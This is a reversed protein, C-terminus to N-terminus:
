FSYKAMLSVIESHSHASADGTLGLSGTWRGGLPGTFNIGYTLFDKDNDNRISFRSSTDAAFSGNLMPSAGSLLRKYGLKVSLATGQKFQKKFESGIEGQWANHSAKDLVQELGSSGTETYAEQTGHTYSLKGYPAVQWNKGKTGPLTYRAKFETNYLKTDFAGHSTKNFIPLYHDLDYRNEGFSGQLQYDWNGKIKSGYLGVRWDKSDGTVFDSGYDTNGYSFYGGVRTDPSLSKDYGVIGGFTKSNSTGAYSSAQRGRFMQMWLNNEADLAVQPMAVEVAANTTFGPLVVKIKGGNEGALSVTVATLTDIRDSVAQRSLDGLANGLLYNTRNQATVGKAFTTIDENSAFYVNSLDARFQSASSEALIGPAFRNLAQMVKNEADSLASIALQEKAELKFSATNENVYDEGLDTTVLTLLNNLDGGAMTGKIGEGSTLYTYVTGPTPRMDDVFSLEARSLDAAGDVALKSNNEGKVAVVIKGPGSYNGRLTLTSPTFAFSNKEAKTLDYSGAMVSSYNVMAGNITGQGTLLGSEIYTSGALSGDIQLTGGSVETVGEYSNNGTLVLIGEGQKRLGVSLGILGSQEVTADYQKIYEATVAKANPDAEENELWNTQYYKYRAALDEPQEGIQAEQGEYRSPDLYGVKIEKIDNSWVSNYGKTNITYIAQSSAAGKPDLIFNGSVKDEAGLRRANLAGLGNVAKAADVVGQGILAELPVNYYANVTDESDVEQGLYSSIDTRIEDEPKDADEGLYFVNYYRAAAESDSATGKSATNDEQEGAVGSVVIYDYVDSGEVAVLEINNNATSLVVDGLQKANMYPFAEQVLAAVGSVFPAAMSTGSEAKDIEGTAAFDSNASWINLGAAAVTNDEVYKALDSFTTMFRSGELAGDEGKTLCTQDIATVSLINNKVSPEFIGITNDYTPGTNGENGAAYVLLKDNKAAAISQQEFGKALITSSLSSWDTFNMADIYDGMGWSNNIVKIEPKDMLAEYMNTRIYDDETKGAAEIEEDTVILGEYTLFPTNLIDASYAVGTMGVGDKAAAIIGAVHTGHDIEQWNYKDYTVPKGGEDLYVLKTNTKGKFEPNAFNAPYDVVGVTINKGTYGKAYAGAVNIVELAKTNTRDESNNDINEAFVYSTNGVLLAGIVGALLAKRSKMGSM